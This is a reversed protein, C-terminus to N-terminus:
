VTNLIYQLEIDVKMGILYRISPKQHLLLRYWGLSKSSGLKRKTHVFSNELQSVLAFLYAVTYNSVVTCKQTVSM